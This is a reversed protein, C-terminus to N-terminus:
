AKSIITGVDEGELARTLLEEFINLYSRGLEDFSMELFENVATGLNDGAQRGLEAARTLKEDSPVTRKKLKLFEFM